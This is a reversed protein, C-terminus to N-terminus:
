EAGKKLAEGLYYHPLYETSNGGFIIRARVQVKRTSEMANIAIAKRMEDAMDAWKKDGRASIGRRFPEDEAHAWATSPLSLVWACVLVSGVIRLLSPKM